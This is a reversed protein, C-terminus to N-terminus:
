VAAALLGSRGCSLPSCPMWKGAAPDYAEVAAHLQQDGANGGVAFLRGGLAAVGCSSRAHQPQQVTCHHPTIVLPVATAPAATLYFISCVCVADCQLLM